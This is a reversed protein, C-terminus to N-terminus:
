LLKNLAFERRATLRCYTEVAEPRMCIKDDVGTWRSDCCRGGSGVSGVLDAGIEWRASISNDCGQCGKKRRFLDGAFDQGGGWDGAEGISRCMPVLPRRGQLREIRKQLGDGRQRQQEEPRQETRDTKSQKGDYNNGAVETDRLRAGNQVSHRWCWATAVRKAAGFLSGFASVVAADGLVSWDSSQLLLRLTGLFDSLFGEGEQHIRENRM